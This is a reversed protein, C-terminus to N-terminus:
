VSSKSTFSGVSIHAKYEMLGCKQEKAMLLMNNFLVVHLKKKTGAIVLNGEAHLEFFNNPVQVQTSCYMKVTSHFITNHKEM